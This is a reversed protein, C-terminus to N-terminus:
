HLCVPIIVTHTEGQPLNGQPPEGGLHVSKRAYGQIHVYHGVNFERNHPFPIHLTGWTPPPLYSASIRPARLWQVLVNNWKASFCRLYHEWAYKAVYLRLDIKLLLFRAASMKWMDSACEFLAAFNPSARHRRYRLTSCLKWCVSNLCGFVNMLLALCVSNPLQRATTYLLLNSNNCCICM